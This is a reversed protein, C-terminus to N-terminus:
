HNNMYDLLDDAYDNGLDKRERKKKVPKTVAFDLIRQINAANRFVTAISLFKVNKENDYGGNEVTTRLTNLIHGREDAGYSSVFKELTKINAESIKGGLMLSAPVSATHESNENHTLIIARFKNYVASCETSLVPKTKVPTGKKKIPIGKKKVKPKIAGEKIDPIYNIVYKLPGGGERYRYVWGAAQLIDLYKTVTHSNSIGVMNMMDKVRFVWKEQRSSMYCYLKFAGGSINPDKIISNPIQTFDRKALTHANEQM